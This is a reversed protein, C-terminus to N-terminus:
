QDYRSINLILCISTMSIILSSGGYSLFPLTIGTCPILNTVVALNLSAQLILGFSLGFSLYKKFLDNQNLSIKISRYFIYM